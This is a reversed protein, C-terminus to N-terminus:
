VRQKVKNYIEITIVGLCYGEYNYLSVESADYDIDIRRIFKWKDIVLRLIQKDAFDNLLKLMEDM